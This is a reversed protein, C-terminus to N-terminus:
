VAAIVSGILPQAEIVIASPSSALQNHFRYLRLFVPIPTDGNAALVYVTWGTEADQTKTLGSGFIQLSTQTNQTFRISPARSVIFAMVLGPLIGSSGPAPDVLSLDFILPKTTDYGNVDFATSFDPNPTFTMYGNPDAVVDAFKFDQVVSAGAGGGGGEVWSLGLLYHKGTTLDIYHSGVAAQLSGDPAGDGTFVHQAM